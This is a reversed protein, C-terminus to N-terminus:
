DLEYIKLCMNQLNKFLDALLFKNSQVCLDHYEGSIKIKFYKQVRKTQRYNADTIDEVNLNSYFDEKEPLSTKNFIEWDNIYKCPCIGKQLLLIFKHIVHNCFKCTNAFQKKLDENVAKQYNRNCCM